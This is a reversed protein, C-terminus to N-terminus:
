HTETRAGPPEIAVPSAPDGLRHDSLREAFRGRYAAFVAQGVPQNPDFTASAPDNAVQQLFAQSIKDGLGISYIVIGQARMSNAVQIARYM